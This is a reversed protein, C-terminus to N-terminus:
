FINNNNKVQNPSGFQSFGGVGLLMGYIREQLATIMEGKTSQFLEVYVSFEDCFVM